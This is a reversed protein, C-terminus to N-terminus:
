IIGRSELDKNFRLIEKSVAYPLMIRGDMHNYELGYGRVYVTTDVIFKGNTKYKIVRYIVGINYLTATVVYLHRGTNHRLVTVMSGSYGCQKSVELTRINSEWNSASTM